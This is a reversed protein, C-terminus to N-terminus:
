CGATFTITQSYTNAAQGAPIGLKFYINQSDGVALGFPPTPEGISEDSPTTPIPRMATDYDQSASRSYHTAAATFSSSVDWDTGSIRIDTIAMNGSNHLVITQDSTSIQGPNLLGFNPTPNPNGGVDTITLDCTPTVVNVTVTAVAEAGEAGTCQQHCILAQITYQGTTSYTHALDTSTTFTGTFTKGIGQTLILHTGDQTLDTTTTDGWIIRVSHQSLQGVFNTSSVTGSVQVPNFVNGGTPSTITISYNPNAAAVIVSIVVLMGVSAVAIDTLKEVLRLKKM